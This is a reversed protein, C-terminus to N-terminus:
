EYLVFAAWYYPHSYYESKQFEAKTRRYAQEYDMGNQKLKKYMSAMFEATAEDDVGWLTVGVRRAGAVMFARNLGIMGDGIRVEGLGTECASLCVLDADLNLLSVEPITLYGDESSIGGLKGSVESFLISSMTAISKDFYGHCAFHLLPYTALTGNKSLQKVMQESAAEQVYQEYGKGKFVNDKLTNLETLTGPLDGWRMNKQRFYESPGNDQINQLILAKQIENEINLNLSITQLGRKNSSTDSESFTQRYEEVSVESDYWAGGFALM